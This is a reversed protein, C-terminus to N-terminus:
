DLAQDNGLERLMRESLFVRGPVRMGTRYTVPLEWTTDDIRQLAAAASATATM